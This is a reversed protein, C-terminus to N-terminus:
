LRRRTGERQFMCQEKRLGFEPSKVASIRSLSENKAEHDTSYKKSWDANAMRTDNMCARTYIMMANNCNRNSFIPDFINMIFNYYIADAKVGRLSSKYLSSGHFVRQSIIPYVRVLDSCLAVCVINRRCWQRRDFKRQIIFAQMKDSALM